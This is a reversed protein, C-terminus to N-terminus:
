DACVCYKGTCAAGCFASCRTQSIAIESDAGNELTAALCFDNGVNTLTYTFSYDTGNGARPLRKMYTTANADTCSGGATWKAFEPCPSTNPCETGTTDTIPSKVEGCGYFPITENGTAPYTQYDNYYLRLANKLEKMEAKVKADRARGRAGLLNASTLGLIVAIISIVILIEILTFGNKKMDYGKTLTIRSKKGTNREYKVHWIPM